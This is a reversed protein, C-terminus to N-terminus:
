APGYSASTFPHSAILTAKTLAAQIAMFDQKNKANIYQHLGSQLKPPNPAYNSETFKLADPWVQNNHTCTFPTKLLSTCLQANTQQCTTPQHHADNHHKLYITSSHIFHCPPAEDTTMSAFIYDKM